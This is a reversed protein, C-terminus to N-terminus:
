AANYFIFEHYINNVCESIYVEVFALLWGTDNKIQKEKRLNLSTSDLINRQYYKM